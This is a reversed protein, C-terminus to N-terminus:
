TATRTRHRRLLPEVARATLPATVALILVYAAARRGLSAHAGAVVALGAIVIIFEGRPILAAGARVRGTRGIGAHRAALWGTTYKTAVGAVAPLFAAPSPPCPPRTPKYASSSSSYLPSYIGCLPSCSARLTPSRGPCHSAVPVSRGRCLGTTTPRGRRGAGDPGAGEAAASRSQAFRHFCWGGARLAARRFSWPSPSPRSPWPQPDASCDPAPWCRPCRRRPLSSPSPSTPPVSSLCRARRRTPNPTRGSPCSGSRQDPQSHDGCAFRKPPYSM